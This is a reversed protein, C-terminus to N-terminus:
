NWRRLVEDRDWARRACRAVYYYRTREPQVIQSRSQTM